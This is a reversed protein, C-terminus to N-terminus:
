IGPPTYKPSLYAIPPAQSELLGNKKVFLLNPRITKTICATARWIRKYASVAANRMSIRGIVAQACVTHVAIGSHTATWQLQQQPDLPQLDGQWGSL